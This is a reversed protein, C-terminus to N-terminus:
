PTNCDASPIATFAPLRERRIFLLYFTTCQELTNYRECKVLHSAQIEMQQMLTLSTAM